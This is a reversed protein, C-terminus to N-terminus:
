LNIIFQQVNPSVYSDEVEVVNAICNKWLISDINEVESRILDVVASSLRPATNKHRIGRKLTSWILEIPNLVCYHPPIRLVTHGKAQTMTDIRYKTPINLDKIISSRKQHM